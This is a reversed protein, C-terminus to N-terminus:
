FPPICEMAIHLVNTKLTLPMIPFGNLQSHPFAFPIKLNFERMKVHFHYISHELLSLFFRYPFFILSSFFKLGGLLFFFVM